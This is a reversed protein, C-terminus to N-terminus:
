STSHNSQVRELQSGVHQMQDEQSTSPRKEKWFQLEPRVVSLLSEREASSLTRQEGVDNLADITRNQKGALEFDDLPGGGPELTTM